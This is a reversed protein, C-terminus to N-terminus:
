AHAREFGIYMGNYGITRRVRKNVGIVRGSPIQTTLGSNYGQEAQSTVYDVGLKRMSEEGLRRIGVRPVPQAGTLPSRTAKAYLGQGIRLLVGEQVLKRLARGVQDYGGFSEFDSRVFVEAQRRKISRAISQKITRM